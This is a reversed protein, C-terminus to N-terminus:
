LACKGSNRLDVGYQEGYTLARSGRQGKLGLDYITALDASSALNRKDVTVRPQGDNWTKDQVWAYGDLRYVAGFIRHPGTTPGDEYAASVVLQVHGDDPQCRLQYFGSERLDFLPQREKGFEFDNLRHHSLPAARAGSRAYEDLSVKFWDKDYEILGDVVSRFYIQTASYQLDPLLIPVWAQGRRKLVVPSISSGDSGWDSAIDFLLEQSGDGDLDDARIRTPILAKEDFGGFYFVSQVAYPPAQGRVAEFSSPAPRELVALFRDIRGAGVGQRANSLRYSGTVVVTPPGAVDLGYSLIRDIMPPLDIARQSRVVALTQESARALLEEGSTERRGLLLFASAILAGVVVGIAAYAVGRIGRWLDLKLRAEAPPHTAACAAALGLILNRDDVDQTRLWVGVDTV